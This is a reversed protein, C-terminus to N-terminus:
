GLGLDGPELVVLAQVAVRRHVAGVQQTHAGEDDGAHGRLVTAFVLGHGFVWESLGDACGGENDCTVIAEQCPVM